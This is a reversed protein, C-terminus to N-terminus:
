NRVLEIKINGLKMQWPFKTTFIIAQEHKKDQVPSDANNLASYKKSDLTYDNKPKRIKVLWSYKQGSRFM